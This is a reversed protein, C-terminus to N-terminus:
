KKEKILNGFGTPVIHHKNMWVLAKEFEEESFIMEKRNSWEFFDKKIQTKDFPQELIVHNNWVAYITAVAECFKESANRLLNFLESLKETKSGFYGQYYSDIKDSKELSYFKYNRNCFWQNQKLKNFVTHMFKNDYPGASQKYYNWNLDEEAIHEALYQLKQFKINTFNKDDKFLSVIKGGLVQKAFGRKNKPILSEVKTYSAKPEAAIAINEKEKNCVLEGKFAKDLLSPILESLEKEREIRQKELQKFQHLLAVFKRQEEIDPVPVEIAELKKLGLTKNRGAGGPSCRVIEELGKPTLFHFNLYEPLVQELDCDCSIFRHSGYRNNDEEQAVAIGGEWAFVNSFVLDGTKIQFLKKTGVELGSLAPKHFTGKGFCRIGLEPYLNEANIQVPRRIIPAVKKM